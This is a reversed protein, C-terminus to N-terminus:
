NGDPTPVDIFPIESDEGGDGGLRSLLYGLTGSVVATAGISIFVIRRRKSDWIRAETGAPRGVEREIVIRLENTSEVVHFAVAYQTYLVLRALPIGPDVTVAKLVAALVPLTYGGEPLEVGVETEFCDLVIRDSSTLAYALYRPPVRTFSVTFVISSDDATWSVGDVVPMPLSDPGAEAEMEEPVVQQFLLDSTDFGEDTEGAPWVGAEQAGALVSFMLVM